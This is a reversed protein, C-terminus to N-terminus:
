HTRFAIRDGPAGIDAINLGSDSRDWRRSSPSTGYALTTVTQSSFLDSRDGNNTGNELHGNGDAQILGCQFHKTPTGQQWENSGNIDCHYVALGSAPLAADLGTKFRNEVLFYENPLDDLKYQHVTAYDGQVAEFSGHTNLSVVRTCWGALHRLYACVPSPTRGGDLHNGASMLCYNGLGASRVFDTDRNGYDYLDPFRCLMHGNEHCFTGISMSELSCIQYMSTSVDGFRMENSFSHPWLWSRDIYQTSGAYVINVADIKRDGNTDFSKLKVKKRVLARMTERLLNNRRTFHYHDRKHRLKIPGFVENSYDLQGGSMLLFYGRVSCFNGHQTYHDDNLLASIENKTLTFPVDPFEVLVTIGRIKGHHLKPGDLLGSDPAATLMPLGASGSLVRPAAPKLLRFRNRFKATIVSGSERLHKRLQAPAPSTAPIGTSVFKGEAVQAYCYCGLGSDYFMTYGDENECRSYFEDGSIKLTISKGNHQVIRIQENKIRSM